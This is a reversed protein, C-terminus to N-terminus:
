KIIVEEMIEKKIFGSEMRLSLALEECALEFALSLTDYDPKWATHNQCSLQTFCHSQITGNREVLLRNYCNDCSKVISM